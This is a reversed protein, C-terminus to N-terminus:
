NWLEKDKSIENTKKPKNKNKTEWIKGYSSYKEIGPSIKTQNFWPYMTNKNKTNGTRM